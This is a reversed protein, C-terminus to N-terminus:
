MDVVLETYFDVFFFPNVLPKLSKALEDSQGAPVNTLIKNM